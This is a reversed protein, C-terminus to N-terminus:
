DLNDAVLHQWTAADVVTDGPLGVTTKFKSLAAETANGSIGDPLGTKSSVLGSPGYGRSLLLGQVRATTSSSRGRRERLDVTPLLMTSPRSTAASSDSAVALTRLLAMDGMVRDVDVIGSAIGPVAGRQKNYYAYDGGGSWQWLSAPWATKTTDVIMPPAAQSAEGGQSNYKVQWLPVGALAFQDTDAVQYKWYNPGSYIMGKRGLESQVVGLFGDIWAVNDSSESKDYTEMDLVPEIFDKALPIGLTRATTQLVQCFWKGETEGGSRGTRHDPRAFHYAGAYFPAGPALDRIRQLNQVFTPDQYDAGESAKCICFCFGAGRVQGFDVSGQSASVDIGLLTSTM